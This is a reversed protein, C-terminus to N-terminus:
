AFDMKLRHQKMYDILLRPYRLGQLDRNYLSVEARLLHFLLDVRVVKARRKLRLEQTQRTRILKLPLWYLM